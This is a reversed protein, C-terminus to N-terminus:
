SLKLDHWEPPPPAAIKGHELNDAAADDSHAVDYTTHVGFLVYSILMAATCIVFRVYATDLSGMLFLNTTVSMAPLLLMPPVSYVKPVRHQHLLRRSCTSAPSSLSAPPASRSPSPPTTAYILMSTRPRVLAFYSPIMHTRAIQLTYRAQGLTGILLGSTMAKLAGLAVMYRTWKTGAVAFTVSYAANADIESYRHCPGTSSAFSAAGLTQDPPHLDHHNAFPNRTALHGLRPPPNALKLIKTTCAEVGENAWVRTRM